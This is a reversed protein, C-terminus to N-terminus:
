IRLIGEERLEELIALIENEHSNNGSIKSAWLLRLRDILEKLSNWYRYETKASSKLHKSLMGAGKRPRLSKRPTEEAVISKVIEYERMVPKILELYKDSKSAKTTGASNYNVRTANTVDLLKAYVHKAKDGLSIPENKFIADLLPRNVTAQYIPTGNRSITITKDSFAVDANGMKLSGDYDDVYVGYQTDFNLPSTRLREVYKEAWSQRPPPWLLPTPKEEEEEEEEDEIESKIKLPTEKKKKKKVPTPFPPAHPPLPPQKVTTAVEKLPEIIPKFAKEFAEESQVESTKIARMKKRVAKTAEVLKRKIEIERSTLTTLKGDM